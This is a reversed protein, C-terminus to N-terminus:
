KPTGCPSRLRILHESACHKMIPPAYPRADPETTEIQETLAAIDIKQPSELEETANMTRKPRLTLTDDFHRRRIQGLAILSLPFAGMATIGLPSTSALIAATEFGEDGELAVGSRSPKAITLTSKTMIFEGKIQTRPPNEERAAEQRRARDSPGDFDRRCDTGFNYHM